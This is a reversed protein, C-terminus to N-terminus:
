QTLKIVVIESDSTLRMPPGWTGTGSSTYLYSKGVNYLGYPYKFFWQVLLDMPPIQGRHTHGSLQLDVGLAAARDFVDPQHSLLVVPKTFDVGELSKELAGEVGKGGTFARDDIGALELVGNITVHENRLPTIGCYLCAAKFMDEGIYYEHNGTIAYVGYTSRLNNMSELFPTLEYVNADIMDGTIVVLDPHQSNVNEVIDDFWQPSKLSDLHIDSLQVIKFSQTNMPLKVSRLTIERLVPIGLVHLYSYGALAITVILSTFSIAWRIQPARFILRFIDAVVTVSFGISILGLWVVGALMFPRLIPSATRHSLYESVIYLLSGCIFIYRVNARAPEALALGYALRAFVYYNIGFFVALAIAIFIIFHSLSPM